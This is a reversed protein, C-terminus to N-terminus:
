EFKTMRTLKRFWLPIGSQVCNMDNCNLKDCKASHREFCGPIDPYEQLRTWGIKDCLRYVSSWYFGRVNSEIGHWVMWLGARIYSGHYYALCMGCEMQWIPDIEFGGRHSKMKARREDFKAKHIPRKDM